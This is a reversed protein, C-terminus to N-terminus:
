RAHVRSWEKAQKISRRGQVSTPEATQFVHDVAEVAAAQEELEEADFDVAAQRLTSASSAALARADKLNGSAYARASRDLQANAWAERALAAKTKDWATAVLGADRTVLAQARARDRADRGHVVDHYDATAVAVPLSGADEQSADVRVRAVIKRTEGAHVDGVDITWGSDTSAAEWGLVELGTVGPPLDVRLQTRRAVVQQTRSLEDRFVSQLQRPDDVFDYSGGGVDALRAMRDEDYDVGLGVTSVSVGEAALQGVRRSLSSMDTRGVNAKGDSLVVVRGVNGPALASRAQAGGEVLGAYLNTSGGEVIRDIAAHVPGVNPVGTAPIVVRAEDSFTVLSYTDGPRMSGALVKAAQRAYAIKGRASMSGSVDMVVALNVPSRVRQGLDAPATVTITLFHEDRSGALVATRDLGAEVILHGSTVPDGPAVQPPVPTEVRVPTVGDPEAAPVPGPPLPEPTSPSTVLATLRPALLGGTVALLALGATISWRKM